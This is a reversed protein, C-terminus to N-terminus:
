NKRVGPLQDELWRVRTILRRIEDDKGVSSEVMNDIIIQREQNSSKLAAIIEMIESLDKFMGGM